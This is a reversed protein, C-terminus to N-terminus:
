DNKLEKIFLKLKKKAIYTWDYNKVINFGEIATKKALQKNKLLNIINKAFSKKNGIQTRLLGKKFVEKYVPLNYCVVPVKCALAESISINWGEEYSPSVFVKSAKIKKYVDDKPIFGCLIINNELGLKNIVNKLKKILSKHGRGIILLKANPKYKIVENWILPLDFVGKTENLRGLFCAEYKKKLNNISNIFKLDLGAGTIFMKNKDFGMKSLDETILNNLLFFGDANNKLFNFSFRQLLFSILSFMFNNSKRKFPSENIHFINAFWKIGKKSLKTAPITNCFFDGTTYVVDYDPLKNILRLTKITRLIYAAPLLFVFKLYNFKDLFVPISYIKNPKIEKNIIDYSVEPVIFEVTHKQAVWRKAIEVFLKDGGTLIENNILQNAIVLIRM